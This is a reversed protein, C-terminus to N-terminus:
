RRRAMMGMGDAPLEHERTGSRTGTRRGSPASTSGPEACKEYFAAVAVEPEDDQLRPLEAGTTGDSKRGGRTWGM